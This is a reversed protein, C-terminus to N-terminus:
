LCNEGGAIEPHSVCENWKLLVKCSSEKRNRMISLGKDLETQSLAHTVVADTQLHGAAMSKVAEAWDNGTNGYSSNWTGILTLQKRLIGWYVNQLLTRDGDPNGMLVAKGGPAVLALSEEMAKGSGVAEIVCDYSGEVSTSYELGCRQALERKAEGRGKIMVRKAGYIKAWQGALMGIPGTGVVCVTDGARVGARKVAHLAVAAPELLAGQINSVADPLEVLNWVPVAVLEAFGGDRRSGIYDYNSCTEYAGKQCSPCQRCPILPYVGVRNGVLGSDKEDFVSEVRGCFEHGPITPFRYTGREFIRPIDSSCIGAALVRVLAWGPRLEPAPVDEYRLDGIGHLVYAKM